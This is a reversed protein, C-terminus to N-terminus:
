DRENRKAIKAIPQGFEIVIAYGPINMNDSRSMQNLKQRLRARLSRADGQRIGSVEMRAKTQFPRTTTDGLWYDFGTGKRSRRIVEYGIEEEALLVAIGAAGHETTYEDDTWADDAQQMSISPWSLTYSNGGNGAAISLGVGQSHGQSELCVGAAEALVAGLAPTIAPIDGSALRNLDLM